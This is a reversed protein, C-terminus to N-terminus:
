SCTLLLALCENAQQQLAHQNFDNAICLLDAHRAMPVTSMPGRMLQDPRNGAELLEAGIVRQDSAGDLQM